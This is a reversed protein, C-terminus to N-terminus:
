EGQESEWVLMDLQLFAALVHKYSLSLSDCITKCVGGLMFEYDLDNFATKIVACWMRCVGRNERANRDIAINTFGGGSDSFLMEIRKKNKTGMKM